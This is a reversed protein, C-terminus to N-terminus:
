DTSTVAITGALSVPVMDTATPCTRRLVLNADVTLAYGASNTGNDCIGSATATGSPVTGQALAFTCGDAEGNFDIIRFGSGVQVGDALQDPRPICFTVLNTTGMQTGGITLSIVGSPAAPDPCDNNARSTLNGYTLSVGTASAVLGVDSASGPGCDDDGCAAVLLGSISSLFLLRQM